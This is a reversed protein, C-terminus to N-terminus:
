ATIIIDHPAVGLKRLRQIEKHLGDIGSVNFVGTLYAFDVQHELLNIPEDIDESEDLLTDYMPIFAMPTFGFMSENDISFGSQLHLWSGSSVHNREPGDISSERFKILCRFSFNDPAKDADIWADKLLDFAPRLEKNKM